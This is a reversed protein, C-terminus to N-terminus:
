KCKQDAALFMFGLFEPIKRVNRKGRLAAAKWFSENKCVIYYLVYKEDNDNSTGYKDTIKQMVSVAKANTQSFLHISISLCVLCVNTGSLLMSINFIGTM